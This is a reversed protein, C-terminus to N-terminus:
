ISYNRTKKELLRLMKLHNDLPSSPSSVGEKKWCGARKKNNRPELAVLYGNDEDDSENPSELDNEDKDFGNDEIDISKDRAKLQGLWCRWSMRM